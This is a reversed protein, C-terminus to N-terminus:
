LEVWVFDVGGAVFLFQMEEGAFVFFELSGYVLVFGLFIAHDLLESIGFLLIVWKSDFNPSISCLMFRITPITASKLILQPLKLASCICFHLLLAIFGFLVLFHIFIFQLVLLSCSLVVLLLHVREEPVFIHENFFIFIFDSQDMALVALCIQFALRM